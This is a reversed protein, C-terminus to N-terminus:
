NEGLLFDMYRAAAPGALYEPSNDKFTGWPGVVIIEGIDLIKGSPVEFTTLKIAVKDPHANWPTNWDEWDQVQPCFLYDCKEAVANTLSSVLDMVEDSSEVRAFKTRAADTVSETAKRGSGIPTNEGDPLLAVYVAGSSKLPIIRPQIAHSYYHTPTDCGALLATALAIFFLKLKM